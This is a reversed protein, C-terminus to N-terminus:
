DCWSVCEGKRNIWMWKGFIKTKVMTNAGTASFSSAKYYKFPIVVNNKKDIFGFRGNKKVCTIGLNDFRDAESYEFPIITKGSSDIYGWKGNKKVACLGSWFCQVEDYVNPIITNGVENIFGWLNNIRVAALGNVCYSHAKDFKPIIQYEGKSNIFGWKSGEKVNALENRFFGAARFWRGIEKGNSNVYTYLGNKRVKFFGGIFIDIDDYTGVSIVVNFNEDLIGQKKGHYYFRYSFGEESDFLRNLRSFTAPVLVKGTSDIIGM